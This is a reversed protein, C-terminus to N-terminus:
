SEALKMTRACEKVMDGVSAILLQLEERTCVMDIDKMIGQDMVKITVFVMPANDRGAHKSRVSYDIRWDFDVIEVGGLATMELHFILVSRSSFYIDRIIQAKGGSVGQEVLFSCVADAESRAKSAEAILISLALVVEESAEGSYATSTRGKVISELIYTGLQEIDSDDLLDLDSLSLATAQSLQIGDM